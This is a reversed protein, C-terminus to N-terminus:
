GVTEPHHLVASSGFGVCSSSPDLLHSALINHSCLLVSNFGRINGCVWGLTPTLLGALVAGSALGTTYGSSILGIYLGRRKPNALDLVLFITTSMLGGSGCGAVARGLLFVALTPAAATLFLGIALVM